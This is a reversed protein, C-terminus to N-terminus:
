TRKWPGGGIGCKGIGAPARRKKAVTLDLLPANAQRVFAVLSPRDGYWWIGMAQSKAEYREILRRCSALDLERGVIVPDESCLIMMTYRESRGAMDDKVVLYSLGNLRHPSLNPYYTYSDNRHRLRIM